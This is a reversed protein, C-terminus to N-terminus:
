KIEKITIDFILNKGALEHNMDMYIKDKTIKYIKVSQGYPTYLVQWEEYQGPNQLDSKNVEMILSEDREGYADAAKIEITKTQWIKMWEVGRDFWAIMQWAWVVFQLGADYDRASNYSGCARAVSEVSTDFVTWDALRWIYDVIIEDWKQVQQWAWKKDANELYQEVADICVQDVVMKGKKHFLFCLSVFIVIVLAFVAILVVLKTNFKADTNWDTSRVM